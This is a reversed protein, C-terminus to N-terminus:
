YGAANGDKEFGPELAVRKGDLHRFRPADVAAQIEMGFVLHSLLLQVQGQPQTSGGMVGFALLPEGDRTAFAPIITHLPRKRPDVRNPHDPETVFGAGRNQLAFGTGPVVVGSGFTGYLSNRSARLARM